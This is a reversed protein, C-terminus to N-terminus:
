IRKTRVICQYVIELIQQDFIGIYVNRGHAEGM